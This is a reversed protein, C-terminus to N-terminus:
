SVFGNTLDDRVQLKTSEPQIGVLLCQAGHTRSTHDREVENLQLLYTNTDVAMSEAIFIHYLRTRSHWRGHCAIGCADLERVVNLASSRLLVAVYLPRFAACELSVM